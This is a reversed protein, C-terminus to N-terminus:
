RNQGSTRRRSNAALSKLERSLTELGHVQARLADIRGDAAARFMALRGLLAATREEDDGPDGRVADVTALLERMQELTFDLPKLTKILALREVDAETYLRFGGASRESPVVLGVEHYHRITRLSLGVRNAVEGIQM